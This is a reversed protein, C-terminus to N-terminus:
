TYAPQTAVDTSINSRIFRKLPSADKMRTLM